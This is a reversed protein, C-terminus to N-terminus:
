DFFEMGRRAQGSCQAYGEQGKARQHEQNGAPQLQEGIELSLLGDDIATLLKNSL